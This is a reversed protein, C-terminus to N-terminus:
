KALTLQQHSRDNNEPNRADQKYTKDFDFIIKNSVKLHWTNKCIDNKNAQTHVM